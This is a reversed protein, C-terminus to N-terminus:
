YGGRQLFTTIPYISFDKTQLNISDHEPTEFTPMEDFLFLMGKLEPNEVDEWTVIKSTKPYAPHTIIAGWAEALEDHNVMAMAAFLPAIFSRMNRDPYPAPTATQYPDVQDIM